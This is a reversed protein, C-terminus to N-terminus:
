PTTAAEPYVDPVRALAADVANRTRDSASPMLHTYTRLTFGPDSHGLHEAVVKISEGADLLVSAYFHRLSHMGTDQGDELQAADAAAKWHYGNFHNRNLAGHERSTVVLAVTAPEGDPGGAGNWPLTVDVAPFAALHLALAERVSPPLPVDRVKEGKPLAYVRRNGALVKVQRRVHVEGRLFDVDDPSLGFLEGQRLGLGAGLTVLVRYREAMAGRAAGVQAATWPVVKRRQVKGPRSSKTRAANKAVKEDEVAAALISSVNAHITRAYSPSVKLGALWAKITSPKIQRLQKSGLVPYVHKTLRQTVAERTSANFTQIALWAEAHAKFTERGADPALYAGRRVSVTVDDLFEQADRKRDFTKSRQM